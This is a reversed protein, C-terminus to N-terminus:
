FEFDKAWHITTKPAKRKLHDVRLRMENKPAVDVPVKYVKKFEPCYVLFFDIEGRYDKREHTFGNKSAASFVVCGGRVWGTKSQVRFLKAGDDLVLDYRQNNGFPISPAFGREVACLLIHAESIEGIAKPALGMM